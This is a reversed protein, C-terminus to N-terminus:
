WLTWLLFLFYVLFLLYVLFYWIVIHTQALALYINLSKFLRKPFWIGSIQLGSKLVWEELRGQYFLGAVHARCARHVRSASWMTIWASLTLLDSLAQRQCAPGQSIWSTKLCSFLLFLLGLTLVLFLFSRSGWTGLIWLEGVSNDGGVNISSM